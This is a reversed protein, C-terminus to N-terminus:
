PMNLDSACAITAPTPPMQRPPRVREVMHNAYMASRLGRVKEGAHFFAVILYRAACFWTLAKRGGKKKEIKGTACANGRCPACAGGSEGAAASKHQLVGDGVHLRGQGVLATSSCRNPRVMSPAPM